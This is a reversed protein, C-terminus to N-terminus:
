MFSQVQVYAIVISAATVAAVGAAGLVGIKGYAAHGRGWNAFALTVLIGGVLGGIHAGISINGGGSNYAVNFLLNIAIWGLAQGALKGTANWELILMAGLVGFIAGSAGVAPARVDYVLHGASGALGSVVYLLVYRLSGLYTEVPRGIAWLSIMNLGIHWLSAHLFMTTGIRWWDGHAVFPAWLIFKDFLAGGPANVGSGQVATVLYIGINIAILARTVPADMVTASTRRVIRPPNIRQKGGHEPCRIGVPSHRMCETCVPRGCETCSLGTERDPHRYCTPLSSM